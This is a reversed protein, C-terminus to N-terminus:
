LATVSDEKKEETIKEYREPNLPYKNKYGDPWQLCFLGWDPEYVIKCKVLNGKYYLQVQDGEHLDTGNKDKMGFYVGKFLQLRDKM